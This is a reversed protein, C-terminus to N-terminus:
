PVGGWVVLAALVPAGAVLADVRDLLGGHGPLLNGSDKLGQRRKYLSEFLDGVIGAAVVLVAGAPWWVPIAPVAVGVAALAAHLAVAGVLALVVGGAAGEWTKGPSITVALKHRGFTRGAVYGGIDSGWVLVLLQSLWYSGHGTDLHLTLMGYGAGGLVFLGAMGAALVSARGGGSWAARVLALLAVLWFAAFLHVLGSPGPMKVLWLWGILLISGVAAVYGARQPPLALGSLRAWEWGGLTFVAVVFAGLVLAPAFWVVWLVIPALLLATIVRQRFM